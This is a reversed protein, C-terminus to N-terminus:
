PGQGPTDLTERGVSTEAKGKAEGGVTAGNADEPPQFTAAAEVNARTQSHDGEGALAHARVRSLKGHGPRNDTKHASGIRGVDGHRSAVSGKEIGGRVTTEPRPAQRLWYVATAILVIAASSIVFRWPFRSPKTRIRELPQGCEPCVFGAGEAAKWKRRRDARRCLGFNICKGKIKAM